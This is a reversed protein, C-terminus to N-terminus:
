RNAGGGRRLAGQVSAAKIVRHIPEGLEASPKQDVKAIIEAKAGLEAILRAPREMTSM